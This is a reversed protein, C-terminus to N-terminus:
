QAARNASCRAIESDQPRRAQEEAHGAAVHIRHHIAVGRIAPHAAIIGVRGPPCPPLRGSRQTMTYECRMRSAKLARGWRSRRCRLSGAACRANRNNTPAPAGSPTPRRSPPDAPRHCHRAGSRRSQAAGPRPRRAIPSIVSKRPVAYRRRPMGAPQTSISELSSSAGPGNFGGSRDKHSRPPGGRSNAAADPMRRAGADLVHHLEIALHRIRLAIAADDAHRGELLDALIRHQIRMRRADQVQFRIGSIRACQHLAMAVCSSHSFGGGCERPVASM